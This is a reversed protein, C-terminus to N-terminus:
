MQQASTLAEVARDQTQVQQGLQMQNQMAAAQANMAENERQAQIALEQETYTIEEVNVGNSLLIKDVIKDMNFRKGMFQAVVPAITNIESAAIVLGQNETSRSLAQIGTLINLRIDAADIALIIDKRVEYLLLYALPLHMSEALQSYVGGLVQEAEEANQRIEYATIREGDRQNGMYMFAVNLRQEIDNLDTKIVQIKQFSGGEYPQIMNPDGHVFEGNPANSASDIDVGGQPNVMHILRLSEMEYAMLERSLDSLKSFDAAYDEVYGRGYSDGNVFNWTVPIYPCLKDRYVMNTPLEIGQLEQTVRWSKVGNKLLRQVRTYLKLPANSRYDGLAAKTEEDLEEYFKHELIILDLVEGVNNRKVAYNKLSYVRMSDAVRYLLCEGTIILLRMAQVLQAYSANYFLRECASNEYEIISKVKKREFLAKLDPNTVDIRFFSTNAPFLTRALKTALRNVILAGVSQYDYEITRNTNSNYFSEDGQPFISPITWLAYQEVRDLLGTDQYKTFLASLRYSLEPVAM